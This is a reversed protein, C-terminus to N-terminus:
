DSAIHWQLLTSLWSLKPGFNGTINVSESKVEPHERQKELLRERM